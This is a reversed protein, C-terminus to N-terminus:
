TASVYGALPARRVSADCQSPRVRSYFVRPNDSASTPEAVASESLGIAAARKAHRELRPQPHAFVSEHETMAYAEDVEVEDVKLPSEKDALEGRIVRVERPAEIGIRVCNGKIRVLTIKIDDGIQIQENTKRTLVLM